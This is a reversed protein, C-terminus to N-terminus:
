FGIESFMINNRYNDIAIKVNDVTNEPLNDLSFWKCDSSKNKEADTPIGKWKYSTFFLDVYDANSRRHMALIFKLDKKDVDVGAEEKTERIVAQLVTENEELHGSATGFNGDQWGTNHRKILFIKNNKILFVYVACRITFRKKEPQVIDM